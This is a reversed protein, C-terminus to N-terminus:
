DVLEHRLAYRVLESDTQLGLKQLVRLKHTSVTKPSIHLQVAIPRIGLGRALLCFVQYERDSLLCHPHSGEDLRQYLMKAALSPAVYNGGRAVLRIAEILAEPEGDKTLYGAAGARIVRSAMEIEDHVTLVLIPLRPAEDRIRKILEVGNPSPMSLDLLLIDHGGGAITELVERGNRAVDVLEMDNAFEFVRRLGECFIAHDEAVLIRIM